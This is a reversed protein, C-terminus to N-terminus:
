TKPTDPLHDLRACGTCLPLAKVVAREFADKDGLWRAGTVPKTGCRAREGELLHARSGDYLYGRDM